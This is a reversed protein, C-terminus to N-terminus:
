RAWSLSYGIYFLNSDMGPNRPATYGNSIHLYKYGLQISQNQRYWIQVGAGFALAFNFKSSDMVPVQDRFYLIGVSGNLYPQVVHGRLLNIRLGIPTVGVGSIKQKDGPLDVPKGDLMGQQPQRVSAVPVIEAAYKLAWNDGAALVRSYLINLEYFTRNKKRGILTPNYGSYGAWLGLENVGVEASKGSAKRLEATPAGRYIEGQAASIGASSLIYLVLFLQKWFKRIILTGQVFRCILLM